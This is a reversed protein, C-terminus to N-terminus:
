RRKIANSTRILKTKTSKKTAKKIGKLRKVPTHALHKSPNKALRKAHRGYQKINGILNKSKIARTAFKLKSGFGLIRGAGTWIM